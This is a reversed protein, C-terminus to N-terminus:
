LSPNSDATRLGVVPASAGSREAAAASAQLVDPLALFIAEAIREAADPRHWRALAASMAQRTSDSRVLERIQWLLRDPTAEHQLQLRAAGSVALARANHFQHNDAASPYPILVAPLRLAAFEAIASAGARSIAMTAAGLALEMKTLFPEVVCRRQQATYAQRVTEIDHPGTLHVFQLEPETLALAPLLRVVAQNIARAGQSGGVILLVPGDPRLGLSQRCAAPDVGLLASRVPMGTVVINRHRLRAAAETYNVFARDVVHALWRNARGPIANAEHLYTTAGMRRGVLIPAASTFGGMALVASPPRSRFLARAQGLSRAFGRLFRGWGGKELGVAELSAVESGGSAGLANRDVEKTSTLLLVDAGRSRLADAVALGPFLHGGTGGCAIAIRPQCRNTEIRRSAM